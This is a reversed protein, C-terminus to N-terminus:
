GWRAADWTPDQEYLQQDQPVFTRDQIVLPITANGNPILGKSVLAKETDDTIVYGAAEGAYVNLRTIGWAHDHYFMLRASQQNTYYFTMCGDNNGSCDPVNAPKASGVMDPVSQVSVGQPWGGAGTDQAPTIWQHPTGDSIWPTNGGHLHLTARNKRFCHADMTGRDDTCMPNRVEDTVTGGLKPAPDYPHNHGAPGSGMITTDTPLFLDGEVGKPLLNYFTIRVPRDKTAVITPGLWHPEDLGCAQSGDPMLAPTSTGDLRVTQLPVGGVDACVEGPGLLRLQVYERTLTPPLDSHMKEQTQVLGIVYYDADPANPDGSFTLTDPVAVPIYQGLNNAATPGLGPLTDVFKRIGGPTIYGSGPSTVTIATIAGEDIFATATAGSGGGGGPVPDDITVSPATNYGAGFTDMEIASLTLGTAKNITEGQNDVVPPEFTALAGGPNLPIPDFQTGNLVAVDPARSYGSGPTDVIVATIAGTAGCTAGGDCEAHGTAQVGNPHDPLDFQVTPYTYGSGGNVLQVSTVGGYATATAGGAGSFGVKPNKYETGGNDVTVAVVAGSKTVTPKATAGTGSGTITVTPLCKGTAAYGNGPDTVTIATVGGNAGVTAEATAGGDFCGAAVTINVKADAQTFPSNAWNPYPGFYHPVKTEDTPSVAAASSTGGVPGVLAAVVALTSLFVVFKRRHM